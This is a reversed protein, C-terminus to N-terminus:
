WDFVLVSGPTRVCHQHSHLQEQEGDAGPSERVSHRQNEARVEPEGPEAQVRVAVVFGRGVNRHGVALEGPEPACRRDARDLISEEAKEAQQVRRDAQWSHLSLQPSLLFRYLARNWLTM